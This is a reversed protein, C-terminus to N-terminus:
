KEVNGVARCIKKQGSYLFDVFNFSIEITHFRAVFIHVKPRIGGSLMYQRENSNKIIGNDADDRDENEKILNFDHHMRHAIEEPSNAMFRQNYAGHEALMGYLQYDDFTHCELRMVKPKHQFMFDILNFMFDIPSLM